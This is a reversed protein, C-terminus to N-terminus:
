PFTRLSILSNTSCKKKYEIQKRLEEEKHSKQYIRQDTVNLLDHHENDQITCGGSLFFEPSSDPPRNGTVEFGAGGEDGSFAYWDRWGVYKWEQDGADWSKAARGRHERAKKVNGEHTYDAPYRHKYDPILELVKGAHYDSLMANRPLFTTKDDPDIEIDMDYRFRQLLKLLASIQETNQEGATELEDM